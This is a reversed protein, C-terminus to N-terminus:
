KNCERNAVVVNMSGRYPNKDEALEYLSMGLSWVDSKCCPHGSIYEPSLFVISSSDHDQVYGISGLSVTGMVSMFIDNIKM